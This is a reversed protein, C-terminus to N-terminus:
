RSDISENSSTQTKQLAQEILKELNKRMTPDLPLCMENAEMSLHAYLSMPIDRLTEADVTFPADVILKSLLFIGQAMDDKVKKNHEHVIGMIRPTPEQLSIISGKPYGYAEVNIVKTM